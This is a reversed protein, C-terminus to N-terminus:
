PTTELPLHRQLEDGTLQKTWVIENTDLRVMTKFGGDYDFVRECEVNRYEYGDKVNRALKNIDTELSAIESDIAKVVDKKHLREHELEGIKRAMDQSFEKIEEETFACKLYEKVKEKIIQSPQKSM